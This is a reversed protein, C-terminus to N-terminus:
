TSNSIIFKVAPRTTHIIITMILTTIEITITPIIMRDYEDAHFVHDADDDRDDVIWSIATIMMYSWWRINKVVVWVFLVLLADVLMIKAMLIVCVDDCDAGNDDDTAAAAVTPINGVLPVAAFGQWLWRYNHACTWSLFVHAAVEMEPGLELAHWIYRARSSFSAFL